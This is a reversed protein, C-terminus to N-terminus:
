WIKKPIPEALIVGYNVQRSKLLKTRNCNDYRMWAFKTTINLCEEWICEFVCLACANYIFDTRLNLWFERPHRYFGSCTRFVRLVGQLLGSCGGSLFFIIASDVEHKNTLHSNRTVSPFSPSKVKEKFPSSSVWVEADIATPQTKVYYILCPIYHKMVLHFVSFLTSFVVRLELHKM